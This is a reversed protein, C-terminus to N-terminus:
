IRNRHQHRPIALYQRFLIAAIVHMYPRMANQRATRLRRVERPTSIRFVSNEREALPTRILAQFQHDFGEIRDNTFHRIRFEDDRSSIMWIRAAINLRQLFLPRRIRSNFERAVNM